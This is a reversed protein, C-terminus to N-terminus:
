GAAAPTASFSGTLSIVASYFSGIQGTASNWGMVSEYNWQSPDSGTLPPTGRHILPFGPAIMADGRSTVGGSLPLRGDTRTGPWAPDLAPFVLAQKVGGTAVSFDFGAGSEALIWVTPAPANDAALDLIFLAGTSFSWIMRKCPVGAVTSDSFSITLTAAGPAAV